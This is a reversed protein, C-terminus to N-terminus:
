DIFWQSALDAEAPDVRHGGEFADFRVTYGLSRLYPVINDRTNEISLVGDGDGHTIFVDPKGTRKVPSIFGPAFAIIHSFLDGNALGLSLAYSAGDSFGALAIRAPDVRLRKFTEELAENIVVVDAGFGGLALDWTNGRSKPALVAFGYQEALAFIQDVATVTGGAGHLMVVLPVAGSTAANPILLHADKPVAVLLGYYGPAISTVNSQPRATLREKGSGQVDTLGTSAKCAGLALCLVALGSLWRNAITM